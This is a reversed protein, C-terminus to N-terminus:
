RTAGSADHAPKDRPSLTTARLDPRLETWGQPFPAKAADNRISTPIIAADRPAWDAPTAVRNADATRLADIGRLHSGVEDTALGFPKVGRRAFDNALQAARGIEPTCGPALDGLHLSM